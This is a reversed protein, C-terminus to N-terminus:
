TRSSCQYNNAVNVTYIYLLHAVTGADCDPRKHYLRIKRFVEELFM